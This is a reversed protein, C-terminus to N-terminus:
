RLSLLIWCAHSTGDFQARARMRVRMRVRVCVRVCVRVNVRVRIRLPSSFERRVELYAIGNLIATLAMSQRQREFPTGAFLEFLLIGFAAVGFFSCAPDLM